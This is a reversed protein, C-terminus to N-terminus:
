RRLWPSSRRRGDAGSWGAVAAPSLGFVAALRGCDLRLIRRGSRRPRGSAPRSRDVTPVPLWSTGGGRIDRGGPWALDDLRGPRMTSAPTVIGALRRGRHRAAIALIAEALDPSSTPCGTQDGCCAVPQNATGCEAHHSRFEQRDALVAVIDAGRDRALLRALVAAEGALKSAGYVCQPADADTEVYPAGKLGDFVYDTSIQILPIGAAECLRALEAPGDRNARFAADADDEAADVATYAATNVVLAPASARSCRRSAPRPPRFRVRVIWGGLALGRAAAAEALASGLSGPAGPSWSRRTM